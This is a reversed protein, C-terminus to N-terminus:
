LIDEVNVGYVAKHIALYEDLGGTAIPLSGHFRGPPLRLAEQHDLGVAFRAMEDTIGSMDALAEAKTCLTCIQEGDRRSIGYMIPNDPDLFHLM